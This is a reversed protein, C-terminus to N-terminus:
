RDLFQASTIEPSRGRALESQSAIQLPNDAFARVRYSGEYDYTWLTNSGSPYLYSVVAHGVMKGRRLYAYRVVRATIGQRALGAQFAIATPLCANREMEMWAEPNQPTVACGVSVLIALLLLLARM